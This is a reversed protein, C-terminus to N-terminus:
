AVGVITETGSPLLRHCIACHLKGMLWGCAKGIRQGDHGDCYRSIAQLIEEDMDRLVAKAHLYVAYREGKSMEDIRVGCLKQYREEDLLEPVCTCKYGIWVGCNDHHIKQIELGSKM